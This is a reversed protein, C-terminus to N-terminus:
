LSIMHPTKPRRYICGIRSAPGTLRLSKGQFPVRTITLVHLSARRIPNSRKFFSLLCQLEKDDCVLGLGPGVATCTKVLHLIDEASVPRRCFM